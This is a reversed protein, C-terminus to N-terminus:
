NKITISKLINTLLKGIKRNYISYERIHGNNLIIQIIDNKFLNKEIYNVYQIKDIECEVSIIYTTKPHPKIKLLRYNTLMIYKKDECYWYYSTENIKKNLLYYLLVPIGQHIEKTNNIIDYIKNPFLLERKNEEVNLKSPSHRPSILNSWDFSHSKSLEPSIPSLDSSDSSTKVGLVSLKNSSYSPSYNIYRIYESQNEDLLPIFPLTLFKKKAKFDIIKHPVINLKDKPIFIYKPNM